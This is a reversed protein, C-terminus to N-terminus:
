GGYPEGRCVIMNEFFGKKKANEREYHKLYKIAEEVGEQTNSFTRISIPLEKSEPIVEIRFNLSCQKERYAEEHAM